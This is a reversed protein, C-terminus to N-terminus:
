RAHESRPRQCLPDDVKRGDRWLCLDATGTFPHGYIMGHGYPKVDETTGARTPRHGVSTLVALGNVLSVLADLLVPRGNTDQVTFPDVPPWFEERLRDAQVRYANELDAVARALRDAYSPDPTTTM